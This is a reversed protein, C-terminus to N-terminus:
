TRKPLHPRVLARPSTSGNRRRSRACRWIASCEVSSGARRTIRPATEIIKPNVQELMVQVLARCTTLPQGYLQLFEPVEDLHGVEKGMAGHPDNKNIVVWRAVHRCQLCIWFVHFGTLDCAFHPPTLHPRHVSKARELARGPACHVAVPRGVGDGPGEDDESNVGTAHVAGGFRSLVQVLLPEHIPPLFIFFLVLGRARRTRSGTQISYAAFPGM